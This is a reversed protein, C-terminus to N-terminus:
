YREATLRHVRGMFRRIKEPSKVGPASEVGSSIDVGYPAVQDIAKEITEASLGGALIVPREGCEAVSTWDFATGTGGYVGERFTDLLIARASPYLDVTRALDMDPRVRIAKIYPRDYALCASETEDGHFQLYDPKVQTVVASVLTPDPDVFVAVVDTFAPVRAAIQAAAHVEIARPSPPFFVLGLADAGCRIALDADEPRTIGCIKVRTRLSM